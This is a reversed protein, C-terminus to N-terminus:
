KLIIVEVKVITYYPKYLGIRNYDEIVERKTRRVNYLYPKNKKYNLCICYMKQNM